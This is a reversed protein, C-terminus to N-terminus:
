SSHAGHWELVVKRKKEVVLRSADVTYVVSHVRRGVFGDHDAGYAGKEGAIVWVPAMGESELLDLFVDKDVLCTSPGPSKVSPDQIVLRGQADVAGFGGDRDSLRLKLGNLLWREPLEMRITGEISHDFGGAECFYSASTPLVEPLKNTLEREFPPRWGDGSDLSPHWAYEALFVDSISRQPLAHPDILPERAFAAVIRALDAKRVAVCWIRCWTDVHLVASGGTSMHTFGHLVLWRRGTPDVVDLQSASNLVDHETGLWATQEAAVLRELRAPAPSWWVQGSDRENQTRRILLSPDIDRRSTQWAGEFRTDSEAYRVAYMLNDSVRALLEHLAIWQYKKGIRESVHDYRDSKQGLARDVNGLLEHSWGLEHARVTVWLQALFPPLYAPHNGTSGHRLQGLYPGISLDYTLKGREDMLSLVEVQLAKFEAEAQKVLASDQEPYMISVSLEGAVSIKRPTRGPRGRLACFGYIRGLAELLASDDSPNLSLSWRECQQECSLAVCEEIHTATWYHMSPSIVYKAFDGTWESSASRTISDRTVGGRDLPLAFVDLESEDIHRLTLDSQWPPLSAAVDLGGPLLQARYAFAVIGSAYDRILFHVPPRRDKFLLEHVLAATEGIGAQDYSHLVAGYVAALLRELVYPDNVELFRKLLERALGLRPRLLSSLAKTASDRMPRNSTSLLWTLAIGALEARNAEVENDAGCDWAWDILARAPSDEGYGGIALAASWIADRQPMALPWLTEHLHHANFKNDPETAISLRIRLWEDHGDYLDLLLERTRDTFFRQDRLLLSEKFPERLAWVSDESGEYELELIEVGHREPLLLALAEVVGAKEYLNNSTVLAHLPSNPAPRRMDAGVGLQRALLEDAVRLDSIREFTFRVMEQPQASGEVAVPEVTLVGENELQVLLSESLRNQSPRIEELAATADALVLYASDHQVILKTLAHVGRKVLQLRADLGMRREISDYASALYIDLLRTISQSGAPFATKGERKLADCCTKLFLPNSFETM